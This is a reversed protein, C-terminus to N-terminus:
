AARYVNDPSTFARFHRTLISWSAKTVASKSGIQGNGSRFVFRAPWPEARAALEVHLRDVATATSLPSVPPPVAPFSTSHAQAIFAAELTNPETSAM